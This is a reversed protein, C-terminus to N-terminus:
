INLHTVKYKYLYTKKCVELHLLLICTNALEDFDNAVEEISDILSDPMAPLVTNADGAASSHRLESILSRVSMSFWETSEQILALSKLQGVDSLIESANIGGEGLNSALIEAEHLNRQRVEEPSEEDVTDQRRSM